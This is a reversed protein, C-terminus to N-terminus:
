RYVELLTGLFDHLWVDRLGYDHSELAELVECLISELEQVSVSNLSLQHAIDSITRKSRIASVLASVFDTVHPYEVALGFWQSSFDLSTFTTPRGPNDSQSKKPITHITLRSTTTTSQSVACLLAANPSLAVSVPAPFWPPLLYYHHNERDSHHSV